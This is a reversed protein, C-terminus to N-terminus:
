TFSVICFFSTAKIVDTGPIEGKEGHADLVSNLMLPMSAMLEAAFATRSCFSDKRSVCIEGHRDYM